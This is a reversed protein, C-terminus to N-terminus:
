SEFLVLYPINTIHSTLPALLVLLSSLQCNILHPILSRMQVFSYHQLKYVLMNNFNHANSNTKYGLCCWQDEDPMFNYVLGLSRQVIIKLCDNLSICILVIHKSTKKDPALSIAPSRPYVYFYSCCWGFSSINVNM